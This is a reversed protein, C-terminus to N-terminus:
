TQQTINLPSTELFGKGIKNEKYEIYRKSTTVPTIALKQFIIEIITEMKHM